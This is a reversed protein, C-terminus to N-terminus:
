YVEALLGGVVEDVRSQLAAGTLGEKRFRVLHTALPVAFGDMYARIQDETIRLKGDLGQDNGSNVCPLQREGEQWGDGLLRGMDKESTVKHIPFRQEVGQAQSFRAYSDVAVQTQNAKRKGDRHLEKEGSILVEAGIVSSLVARMMYFHLHCGLCPTFFGFATILENIYRGNLFGWAAVDEMVFWPAVTVSPFRRSIQDRMSRWNSEYVSWDGYRTPVLDGVPVLTGVENHEMWVMAAAVSDRGAFDTLALPKPAIRLVRAVEVPLADLGAGRGAAACLDEFSVLRPIHDYMKHYHGLFGAHPLLMVPVQLVLAEFPRRMALDAQASGSKLQDVRQSLPHTKGTGAQSETPSESHPIRGGAQSACTEGGGGGTAFKM